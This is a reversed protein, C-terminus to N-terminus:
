VERYAFFDMVICRRYTGNTYSSTTMFLYLDTATPINTTHTTKLVGDLWFAVSTGNGSVIITAYHEGSIGNATVTEENDTGSNDTICTVENGAGFYFAIADNQSEPRYGQVDAAMGFSFLSASEKDFRCTITFDDSARLRAEGAFLACSHQDSDGSTFNWGGGNPSSYIGSNAGNKDVAFQNGFGCKNEDTSGVFGQPWAGLMYVSRYDGDSVFSTLASDLSGSSAAWTLGGGEGSQAQLFQGNTPANSVDLKAEVISDAAIRAAPLTGSTIQTGNLATLAAGNLAPLTGSATINAAALGTLGVGGGVFQTSTISTAGTVVGADVNVAGDLVIASGAAPTINIAGSNATLTNGNINLNDVTLATVGTIAGAIALTANGFTVLDTDAALGMTTAGVLITSDQIQNGGTGNWRVLATSTSSGPVTFPPAHAIATPM